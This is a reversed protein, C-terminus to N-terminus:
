GLARARPHQRLHVVSCRSVHPSCVVSCSSLVKAAPPVCVTHLSAREPLKFTGLLLRGRVGFIFDLLNTRLRRLVPPALLAGLPEAAGRTLAFADTAVPAAVYCDRARPRHRPPSHSSPHSSAGLAPKGGALISYSAASAAANNIAM